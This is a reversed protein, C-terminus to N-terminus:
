RSRRYVDCMGLFSRLQTLTQPFSAKKITKLNKENVSLRGPRVVHGLYEVENTFLHCNQAKLTVGHKGLLTLVTDLHSLHSEADASFIILDDLYVLVNKWKVGSLIMDIARQFPASANCLGFPILVMPSAWKSESPEIGKLKLLRDVQAKILERTRPGIWYPNLRVHKSGPKLEIRHETAKISGLHGNWLARHKELLALVQPRLGEPVNSTHVYPEEVPDKADHATTPSPSLAAWDERSIAAVTGPYALIHGMVMGKPFRKSTEGTHSVEVWLTQNATCDMTGFAVHVRHREYVRHRQTVIGNGQFSTQVPVYGRFLRPLVVKHALRVKTDAESAAGTKPQDARAYSVTKGRHLIPVRCGNLSRIYGKLGCINPVHVDTDDTGLLLPVSMGRVVGCTVPTSYTGVRVTLTVTGTIPLLGGNVDFLQATAADLPAVEMEPPLLAERALSVCSGTDVFVCLALERGADLWVRSAVQYNFGTLIAVV